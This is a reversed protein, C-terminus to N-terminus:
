AYGQFNATPDTADSSAKALNAVTQSQMNSLQTQAAQAQQESRQRRIIAVNKDAVILQPPVGTMDAYYDVWEDANFKDLVGPAVQAVAGLNGIFRDVSNTSVAKQAQALMSVYEVKLEVGQLEQPPPPLKGAQALHTFTMEILPDLLENHLRELVPGLMLLKEEHREAVETATMRDINNTALMLFLDAYFTSSIRGRVDQIDALLYQLNLNVEFATKVGNGSVATDSFTIGGPLLDIERNKMGTPFVLPPKTMLDIAQAKRLQQHQLQKIDGLADMGPSHGYIDGGVINWRPCLAPFHDFGSERLLKTDGSGPEFYVSRWPKNTSDKMTVDRDERPEISHVITVWSDLNGRKYLQQVTTSCNDYGFEKVLEAVTRQFERYLTVIEGRYDQALMYEGTTVPYHRIADKSDETVVTAATGFLGLEMYTSHLARYTNSKAFTEMMLKSVDYLWRKVDDSDNLAADPTTLRFWPRAPSTVGAMMGSALVNLSRTASSDYINNSRRTGKNRDQVFYRGNRPLVYNSLEQWHAFWSSRENKLQGLRNNLQERLSQEAM